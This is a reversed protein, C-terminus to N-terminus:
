AQLYYEKHLREAWGDGGAGGSQEPRGALSVSGCDGRGASNGKSREGRNKASTSCACGARRRVPKGARNGRCNCCSVVLFSAASNKPTCTEHFEDPTGRDRKTM